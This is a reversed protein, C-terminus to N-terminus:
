FTFHKPNVYEAETSTLMKIKKDGVSKEYSIDVYWEGISSPNEQAIDMLGDVIYPEECISGNIWHICGHVDFWTISVDHGETLHPHKKILDEVTNYASM